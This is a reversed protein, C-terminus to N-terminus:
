VNLALLTLNFYSCYYETIKQHYNYADFLECSVFGLPEDFVVLWEHRM